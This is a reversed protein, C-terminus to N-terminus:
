EIKVFERTDDDFMWLAGDVPDFGLGFNSTGGGFSALVDVFFQGPTGQNPDCAFLVEEEDSQFYLADARGDGDIDHAHLAIKTINLDFQDTILEKALTVRDVRILRDDVNSCALYYYHDDVAIGTCFDEDPVQAELTAVEPLTSSSAPISWIQTPDVSEDTTMYIRGKYFTVARLDDNPTQPFQAYNQISWTAGADTSIRWLQNTAASTNSELTYIENGVTVMDFGLQTTTLGAATEVNQVTGGAKPLRFLDSPGGVYVFGNPNDDAAVFNETFTSTLGTPLRTITGGVIGTRMSARHDRLELDAFRDTQRLDCGRSGVV